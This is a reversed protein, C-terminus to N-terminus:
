NSAFGSSQVYTSNLSSCTQYTFGNYDPGSTNCTNLQVPTIPVTTLPVSITGSFVNGGSDQTTVSPVWTNGLPVVTGLTQGSSSNWAYYDSPNNCTGSPSTWYYCQYGSSFYSVDGANRMSQIQQWSYVLNGQADYYQGASLYNWHDVAFHNSSQSISSALVSNCAAFGPPFTGSSTSGTIGTDTYNHATVGDMTESYSLVVPFQWLVANTSGACGFSEFEASSSQNDITQGSSNSVNEQVVGLHWLEESSSDSYSQDSGNFSALAHQAIGINTVTITGTVSNNSTDWDTPVVNAATVQVTHSGTTSFIYEFACSVSGGADVYVNNAQDVNNGDIALICTTTASADGNLEVINASINVPQTLMASNPLVLNQVALDPRLKVTEVVTVVDTRNNDIGSINGQLQLQEARYLSPSAFNYYGGSTSLPGFNQTFLPNGSSDFPKYQVKSFSGPPTASSDLTGTTLEVTSNGDKGLLARATMTASGSRGTANGVGSSRYHKSSSVANGPLNTQSRSVPSICLSLLVLLVTRQM